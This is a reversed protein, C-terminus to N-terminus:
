PANNCCPTSTAGLDVELRTRVSLKLTLDFIIKIVIDDSDFSGFFKQM